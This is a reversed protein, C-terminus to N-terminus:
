ESSEENELLKNLVNWDYSTMIDNATEISEAHESSSADEHDDSDDSSRWREVLPDSFARIVHYFIDCHKLAELVTDKWPASGFPTLLAPTDVFTITPPRLTAESSSTVCYSVSRM